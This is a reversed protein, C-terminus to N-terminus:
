RYTENMSSHRQIRTQPHARPLRTKRSLKHFLLVADMYTTTALTLHWSKEGEWSILFCMRLTTPFFERRKRSRETLGTREAPVNAFNPLPPACPRFLIGSCLPLSSLVRIPRGESKRCTPWIPQSGSTPNSTLSVKQSFVHEPAYSESGTGLGRKFQCNFCSSVLYCVFCFFLLGLINVRGPSGQELLQVLKAHAPLLDVLVGCKDCFKDISM